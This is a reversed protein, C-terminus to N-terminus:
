HVGNEVTTFSYFASMLKFVEEFVFRIILIVTIPICVTEFITQIPWMRLTSPWKWRILVNPCPGLWLNGKACARLQLIVLSFENQFFLGDLISGKNRRQRMHYYFKNFFNNSKPLLLMFISSFLWLLHFIHFILLISLFDIFDIFDILNILFFWYIPLRQRSGM